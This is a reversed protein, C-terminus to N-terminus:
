QLLCFAARADFVRRQRCAFILATDDKIYVTIELKGPPTEGCASFAIKALEKAQTKELESKTVVAVVADNAIRQAKM